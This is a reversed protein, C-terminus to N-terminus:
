FGLEINEAGSKPPEPKLLTRFISYKALSPGPLHPTPIVVGFELPEIGRLDM